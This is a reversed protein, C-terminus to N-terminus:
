WTPTRFYHALAPIAEIETRIKGMVRQDAAEQEPTAQAGHVSSFLPPSLGAWVALLAFALMSAYPRRPWGHLKGPHDASFNRRHPFNM